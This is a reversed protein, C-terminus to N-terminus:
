RLTASRRDQVVWALRRFLGPSGDGLAKGLIGFPWKHGRALPLLNCLVVTSTNGM